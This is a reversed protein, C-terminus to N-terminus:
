QKIKPMITTSINHKPLNEILESESTIRDRCKPPFPFYGALIQSCWYVTRGKIDDIWSTTDKNEDILHKYSKLASNVENIWPHGKDGFAKSDNSRATAKAILLEVKEIWDIDQIKTTDSTEHAGKIMLAVAESIWIDGYNVAWGWGEKKVSAEQFIKIAEDWKNELLLESGDYWMFRATELLRKQYCGILNNEAYFRVEDDGFTLSYGLYLECEFLTNELLKHVNMHYGGLQAWWKGNDLRPNQELLARLDALDSHMNDCTTRNDLRGIEWMNWVQNLNNVIHKAEKRADIQTNNFSAIDFSSPPKNESVEFDVELRIIGVSDDDWYETTVAVFNVEYNEKRHPDFEIKGSLSGNDSFIVGPPLRVLTPAQMFGIVEGFIDTIRTNVEDGVNLGGIDIKHRTIKLNNREACRYSESYLETYSWDKPCDNCCLCRGKRYSQRPSTLDENSCSLNSDRYKGPITLNKSDSDPQLDDLADRRRLIRIDEPTPERCYNDKDEPVYILTYDEELAVQYPAVLGETWGDERYDHAIVRGLKWGLKGLNCLVTVGVNFRYDEMVDGTLFNLFWKNFLCLCQNKTYPRLFNSGSKITQM